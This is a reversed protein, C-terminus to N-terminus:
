FCENPLKPRIDSLPWEDGKELGAQKVDERHVRLHEGGSWEGASGSPSQGANWHRRQLSSRQSTAVSLPFRRVRCWHLPVPVDKYLLKNRRRMKFGDCWRGGIQGWGVGMGEGWFQGLPVTNLLAPDSKGHKQEYNSKVKYQLFTFTNHAPFVIVYNVKWGAETDLSSSSSGAGGWLWHHEQLEAERWEQEADEEGERRCSTGITLLLLLLLLFFQMKKGCSRTNDWVAETQSYEPGPPLTTDIPLCLSCQPPYRPHHTSPLSYSTPYVLGLLQIEKGNSRTNRLKQTNQSQDLFAWLPVFNDVHM